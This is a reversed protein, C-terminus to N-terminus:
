ALSKFSIGSKRLDETALLIYSNIQSQATFLYGQARPDDMELRLSELQVKINELKILSDSDQM